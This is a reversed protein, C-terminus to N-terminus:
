KKKPHFHNYLNRFTSSTYTGTEEFKFGRRMWCGYFILPIILEAAAVGVRIYRDIWQNKSESETNETEKFLRIEDVRLKHLEKIDQILEGREQPKQECDKLKEILTEVEQDLLNLISSM